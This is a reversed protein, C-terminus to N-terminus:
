VIELNGSASVIIAGSALMIDVRRKAAVYARKGMSRFPKRFRLKQLLARMPIRAGTLAEIVAQEEADSGSEGSDRILQEQHESMAEVVDMAAMLMKTPIIEPVRSLNGLCEYVHLIAAVKLTHAEFKGLWSLMVMDGSNKLAQM